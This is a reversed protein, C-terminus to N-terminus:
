IIKDAAETASLTHSKGVEAMSPPPILSYSRFNTAVTGPCVITIDINDGEEMRLSEFFGNVAFKSACYASRMPLGFEGSFSSIVIIQGKRDSQTNKLHPLAYKVPYVTGFLNTEVVKRFTAMDALDKFYSHASVGACLLLIDIRGFKEIATEVLRKSEDELTVDTQVAVVNQNNYQTLCM